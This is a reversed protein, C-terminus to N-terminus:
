GPPWKLPRGALIHMHLHFVSQGGDGNTNMVARYGAEAFGEREALERALSAMPGLVRAADPDNLSVVHLRPIILLHVPAQPTLDRFAVAEPSEGVLTAPIEGAVIRCFLCRVADTM